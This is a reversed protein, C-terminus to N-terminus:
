SSNRLAAEPTALALTLARLGRLPFGNLIPLWAKNYGEAGHQDWIAQAAIRVAEAFADAFIDAEFIVIGDQEPLRLQFDAFHSFTLLRLHFQEPPPQSKWEKKNIVLRTEVPEGDFSVEARHGSTAIM